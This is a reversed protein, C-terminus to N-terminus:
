AKSARITSWFQDIGTKTQIDSFGSIDPKGDIDRTFPAMEIGRLKPLGIDDNRRSRRQRDGAYTTPKLRVAAQIPRNEHDLATLTGAKLGEGIYDLPDSAAEGFASGFRYSNQYFSDVMRMEVIEDLKDKIILGNWTHEEVPQFSDSAVPSGNVLLPDYLSNMQVQAEVVSDFVLMETRLLKGIRSRLETEGPTDKGEPGLVALDSMMSNVRTTKWADFLLQKTHAHQRCDGKGLYFDVMINTRSDLSITEDGHVIGMAALLNNIETDYDEHEPGHLDELTLTGYRQRILTDVAENFSGFSDIQDLELQGILANAVEFDFRNVIHSQLQGGFEINGGIFTTTEGYKFGKQELLQVASLTSEMSATGSSGNSIGSIKSLLERIAVEASILAQEYQTKSVEDIDGNTLIERVSTVFQELNAIPAKLEWEHQGLELVKELYLSSDQGSIIAAELQTAVTWYDGSNIGGAKEAALEVLSANYMAQELMGNDDTARALEIQGYVLNIGPYFEFTKYFGDELATTSARMLETKREPDDEAGAELKYIKGLIGACEGVRGNHTEMLGHIEEKAEDLRGVKNYTVALFERIVPSERFLPSTSREYVDIVAEFAGLNKLEYFLVASETAGVYQGETILRDFHDTLLDVKAAKPNADGGLEAVRAAIAEDSTVATLTVQLLNDARRRELTERKLIDLGETNLSTLEEPKSLVDYLPHREYEHEIDITAQAKLSEAQQLLETLRDTIDSPGDAVNM